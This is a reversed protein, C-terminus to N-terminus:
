YMLGIPIEAYHIPINYLRCIDRLLHESGWTCIESPYHTNEERDKFYKFTNLYEINLFLSSVANMTVNNGFIFWDSPLGERQLNNCTYLGQTTDYTSMIVPSNISADFRINIVYDYNINNELAYLEKLENCKFLSYWMSHVLFTTRQAAIAPDNQMSIMDRTYKEPIKIHKNCFMRQKEIVYRKPKYMEIVRQDDDPDLPPYKRGADRSHLTLNDKDFWAHIFVDANNPLILNKYVSPFSKKFHRLQGSFLVATRPVQQTSM